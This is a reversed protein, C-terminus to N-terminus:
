NKKSKNNGFVKKLMNIFDQIKEKCFIYLKYSALILAQISEKLNNLLNEM